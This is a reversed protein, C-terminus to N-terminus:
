KQVGLLSAHPTLAKIAVTLFTDLEMDIQTCEKIIERNVNAAFAKDKMKKKLSKSEMGDIGTPRVLAAAIVLGTVTESCRLAFDFITKPASGNCPGNHAIIAELAEVPLKGDLMIATKRGHEQPSAQTQPYDYDHLLGTIGWLDQDQGLHEAVSRMVAETALAHQMLYQGPASAELLEFATNRDLMSM